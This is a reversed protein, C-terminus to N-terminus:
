TTVMMTSTIVLKRFFFSFWGGSPKPIGYKRSSRYNYNTILLYRLPNRIDAQHICSTSKATHDAFDALKKGVKGLCTSDALIIMSAPATCRVKCPFRAGRLSGQLLIALSEPEAYRAKCPFQLLILCRAALKAPSNQPM